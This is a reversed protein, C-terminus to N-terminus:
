YMLIKKGLDITACINKRQLKEEIHDKSVKIDIKIM